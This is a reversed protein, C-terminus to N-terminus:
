LLVPDVLEELLKTHLIHIHQNQLHLVAVAAAEVVQELLELLELTVPFTLEMLKHALVVVMLQQAVVLHDVIQDLLVEVVEVLM